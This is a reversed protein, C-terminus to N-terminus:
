GPTVSAIASFSMRKNENVSAPFRWHALVYPPFSRSLPTPTRKLKSLPKVMDANVVDGNKPFKSVLISGKNIFVSLTPITEQWIDLGGSPITLIANVAVFVPLTAFPFIVAEIGAKPTILKM